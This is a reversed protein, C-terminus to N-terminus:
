LSPLSFVLLRVSENSTFLMKKRHVNFLVHTRIVDCIRNVFFFINFRIMTIQKVEIDVDLQQQNMHPALFQTPSSAYPPPSSHQNFPSGGFNHSGPIIPPSSSTAGGYSGGQFFDTRPLSGSRHLADLQHDTSNYGGGFMPPPSSLSTPQPPYSSSSTAQGYLNNQPPPSSSTTNTNQPREDLLHAHGAERLWDIMSHDNSVDQLPM